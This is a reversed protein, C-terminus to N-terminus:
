IVFRVQKSSDKSEFLTSRWKLYGPFSLLIDGRLKFISLSYLSCTDPGQCRPRLPVRGGRKTVRVPLRPLRCGAVALGGRGHAARAVFGGGGGGGLRRRRESRAVHGSVSGGGGCGGCGGCGPSSRIASVGLCPSVSTWHEAWDSGNIKVSGSFSGLTDRLLYKRQASFHVLTLGQALADEGSRLAADNAARLVAAAAACPAVSLLREAGDEGLLDEEWLCEEPVPPPAGAGPGSAGGRWSASCWLTFPLLSNWALRKSAASACYEAPNASANLSSPNRAMRCAM